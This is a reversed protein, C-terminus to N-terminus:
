QLLELSRINKKNLPLTAGQAGSGIRVVAESRTASVLVGSRVSGSSLRVSIWRGKLTPLQEFSVPGLPIGASAESMVAVPPPLVGLDATTTATATRQQQSQLRILEEIRAEDAAPDFTQATSMATQTLLGITLLWFLFTRMQM